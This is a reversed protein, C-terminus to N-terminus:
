HHVLNPHSRSLFTFDASRIDVLMLQSLTSTSNQNLYFPTTSAENISVKQNNDEVDEDEAINALMAYRNSSAAKSNGGSAASAGDSATNAGNKM